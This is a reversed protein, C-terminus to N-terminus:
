QRAAYAGCIQCLLPYAHGRPRDQWGWLEVTQMTKLQCYPLLTGDNLKVLYHAREGDM